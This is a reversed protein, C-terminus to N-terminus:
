HMEIGTVKVFHDLLESSSNSMEVAYYDTKNICYNYFWVGLIAVAIGFATTILAEAIGGAVAQIGGGQTEMAGFANIIGLTTGFLGVFPATSGVNALIGMGRKLQAAEKVTSREIARRASEIVNYQQEGETNAKFELLGASFVKAIHSNKYKKALDICEDIRNSKLLAAVKGIFQLSQKKASRFLIVRDFFVWISMINMVILTLIVLKVIITTQEWLEALSFDM